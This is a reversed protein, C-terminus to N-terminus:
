LGPAHFRGEIDEADRDLAEAHHEREAEEGAPQEHRAAQALEVSRHVPRILDDEGRQDAPEHPRAPVEHDLVVAFDLVM